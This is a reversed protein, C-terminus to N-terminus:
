PMCVRVFLGLRVRRNRAVFHILLERKAVQDCTIQTLSLPFGGYLGLAPWRPRRCSIGAMRRNNYTHRQSSQSPVIERAVRWVAIENYRRCTRRWRSSPQRWEPLARGQSQGAPPAILRTLQRRLLDLEIQWATSNTQRDAPESQDRTLAINCHVDKFCKKFCNNVFRSMLIM